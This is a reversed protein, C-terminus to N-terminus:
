FLPYLLDEIRQGNDHNVRNKKLPFSYEMILIFQLESLWSGASFCLHNGVKAATLMQSCLDKHVHAPVSYPLNWPM